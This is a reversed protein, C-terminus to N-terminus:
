NNADQKNSQSLQSEAQKLDYGESSLYNNIRGKYKNFWWHKKESSGADMAYERAELLNALVVAKQEETLQPLLEQYRRFTIPVVGYTMGDKIQNVQDPSLEAALRATFTRHLRFAAFDIQQEIAAITIKAEAMAADRSEAGYPGKAATVRADRDDHLKSLAVYQDAILDRVRKRQGDDALALPALIKDARGEVVTRYEADPPEEASEDAQDAPWRGERIPVSKLHAPDIVVHKIRQRKWTYTIHILGDSTQIVAPYSFESEPQDELVLAANWTKGDSSVAVNLPSRGEPAHNYVLLHRGDALTVADTGASPNPLGTTTMEGWTQGNDTSWIQFVGSSKTRGVAQLRGDGHQLISPQIARIVAPDNVPPTAKWTKGGDTSREFHVRWGEHETSTPSLIDGSPLQVPKNKVPGLIGEPLRKAESWTQGGDSSTMVMGWWDRPTPGVKYFLMLPGGRPQFLVPNWTPYREDEHVGNAVEVPTTWRDAGKPKRALWIGVDPHRERTGGFWAAVLDGDVEAITSAHCSPFPASEYIFEALIVGNPESTAAPEAGSGGSALVCSSIATLLASTGWTSRVDHKM